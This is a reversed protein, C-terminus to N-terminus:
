RCEKKAADAANGRFEVPRIAKEKLIEVIRPGFSEAVLTSIGKRALFEVTSIGAGGTDRYPNEQAGLFRGQTDFFLFYPARGPQGTVSASPTSGNAAVAIKIAPAQQAFAVSSALLVAVLIGSVIGWKM